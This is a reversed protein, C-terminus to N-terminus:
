LQDFRSSHHFMILVKFGLILEVEIRNFDARRSPLWKPVMRTQPFSDDNEFSVPLM